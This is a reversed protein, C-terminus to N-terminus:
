LLNLGQFENWWRFFYIWTFASISFRDDYKRSTSSFFRVKWILSNRIFSMKLFIFCQPFHKNSFIARTLFLFPSATLHLWRCNRVTRRLCLVFVHLSKSWNEVFTNLIQALFLLSFLEGLFICFAVYKYVQVDLEIGHKGSIGVAASANLPHKGNLSPWFHFVCSSARLVHLICTHKRKIPVVPIHLIDPTHHWSCVLLFSFAVLTVLFESSVANKGLLFYSPGADPTCFYHWLFRPLPRSERSLFHLFWLWADDRAKWRDAPKAGSPRRSKAGTSPPFDVVPPSGSTPSPSAPAKMSLPDLPLSGGTAGLPSSPADEGNPSFNEWVPNLVPEM